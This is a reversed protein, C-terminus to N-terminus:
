FVKYYVQNIFQIYYDPNRLGEEIIEYHFTWVIHIYHVYLKKLFLDIPRTSAASQRHTARRSAQWGRNLLRVNSTTYYTGTMIGAGM